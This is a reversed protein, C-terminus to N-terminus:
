IEDLSIYEDKEGQLRNWRDNIIEELNLEECYDMLREIIDDYTEGKHGFKKLNERTEKHIQITTNMM